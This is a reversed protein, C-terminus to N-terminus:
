YQSLLFFFLGMAARHKCDTAKQSFGARWFLQLMEKNVKAHVNQLPAKLYKIGRSGKRFTANAGIRQVVM